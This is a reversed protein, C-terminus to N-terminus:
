TLEELMDVYDKAMDISTRSYPNRDYLSLIEETRNTFIDILEENTSYSLGFDKCYENISGGEVHYIVPLGIAMAELVHNAGAELKSATVYVNHKPLEDVLGPVDLPPIKNRMNVYDETQPTRGIYTFDFKAHVSNCMSSLHMYTDFGKMPNDSWHHSVIKIKKDIEFKNARKRFFDPLPANQIVKSVTKSNLQQRAWESPFVLLDSKKSTETVLRFLEPKGHTGLDGVRQVLLTSPHKIKHTLLKNYGYEGNERPDICFIVDCEDLDFTVDHGRRSSEHIISSLVKSGGGWPGPIPRRNFFIKM